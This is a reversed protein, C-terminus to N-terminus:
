ALGLRLLIIEQGVGLDVLTISMSAATLLAAIVAKSASQDGELM